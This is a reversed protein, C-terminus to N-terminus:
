RPRVTGSSGFTCDRHTGHIVMVEFLGTNGVTYAAHCVRVNSANVYKSDRREAGTAVICM